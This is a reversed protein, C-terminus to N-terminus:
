CTKEYGRSEVMKGLQRYASLVTKFYKFPESGSLNVRPIQMPDSGPSFFGPLTTVAYKVHNRILIQIDRDSYDKLPKGNPYAFSIVPKNILKKILKIDRNIEDFAIDDEEIALIPHNYTHAGVTHIGTALGQVEKENLMIGEFAECPIFEEMYSLLKARKNLPLYKIQNDIIRFNFTKSFLDPVDLDLLESVKKVLNKQQEHNAYHFFLPIHDNWLLGDIHGSSVFFTAPINLKDFFPKALEYQSKYGDDLTICATPQNLKASRSLQIGEDLSLINFHRNIWLVQKKFDEFSTSTGSLLSTKNEINHFNFVLLKSNEREGAIKRIIKNQIFNLM